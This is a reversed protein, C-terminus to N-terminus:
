GAYPESTNSSTQLGNVSTTALVTPTVAGGSKKVCSVTVTAKSPSAPATVALPVTQSQGNAGLDVVISRTQTSGASSSVSLTCSVAVAETSLSAAGTAGTAGSAGTAGTTGTLNVGGILVSPNATVLFPFGAPLTQTAITTASTGISVPTVDATYVDAGPAEACTVAGKNSIGAIAGSTCAGSVREQVQNVNIQSRGVAGNIIKRAGVAGSALKFNSVSGNRLKAKTVAGNKLQRTGVSGAGLSVAAYSVGGLSVFLAVLAVAMAGSPRRRPLPPM